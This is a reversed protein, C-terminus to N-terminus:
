FPLSILALCRCNPFCGAHGTMGDLTPPKDWRVFKGNKKRHSERVIPDNATSWTYGDSGIKVARVQTLATSAKSAETRAIVQARGESVSGTRMIFDILDSSRTGNIKAEIVKDLVREAAERPISKILDVQGYLIDRMSAGVDTSHIISRMEKSMEQSINVWYAKDSKYVGEVFDGAV